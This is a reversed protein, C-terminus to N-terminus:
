KSKGFSRDGVGEGECIVDETEKDGSSSGLFRRGINGGGRLHWHMEWMCTMLMNHSSIFKHSTPTPQSNTPLSLLEPM